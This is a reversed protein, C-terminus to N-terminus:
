AQAAGYCLRRSASVLKPNIYAFLLNVVESLSTVIAFRTYVNTAVRQLFDGFFANEMWLALHVGVV